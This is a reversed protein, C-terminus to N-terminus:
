AVMRVNPVAAEASPELTADREIVLDNVASAAQMMLAPLGNEAAYGLWAATDKPLCAGGYPGRDLTGYRPNWLGEATRATLAFISELDLDGVQSGAIRMENFFSIKLANFLNHVYKQFEAEEYTYETVQARFGAFMRQMADCASDGPRESGITLVRFDLFDEAANHARLYEPNYVVLFDEGAVKGSADELRPILRERTTGPPMTSRFVVLPRGGDALAAGLSDCAALLYDLVIGDETSPTPVCVFVADVAELSMDDVHVVDLGEDTLVRLRRDDIDVFTVDHGLHQLGLGTAHGVVGSGLILVSM